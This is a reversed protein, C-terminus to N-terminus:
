QEISKIHTLFADNSSVLNTQLSTNKKLSELLQKYKNESLYRTFRYIAYIVLVSVVILLIWITLSTNYKEINMSNKNAYVFLKM